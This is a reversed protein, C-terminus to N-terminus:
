LYCCPDPHPLPTHSAINQKQILHCTLRPCCCIGSLTQELRLATANSFVKLFPWDQFYSPPKPKSAFPHKSPVLLSSVPSSHSISFATGFPRLSTIISLTPCEGDGFEINGPASVKAHLVRLVPDWRPNGTQQLESRFCIVPAAYLLSTDGRPWGGTIHNTRESALARQKWSPQCAQGGLGQM